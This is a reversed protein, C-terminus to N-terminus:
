PALTLSLPISNSSTPPLLRLVHLERTALTAVSSSSLCRSVLLGLEYKPLKHIRCELETGSVQPQPITRAKGKSEMKGAPPICDSPSVLCGDGQLLPLSQAGERGEEDDGEEREGAVHQNVERSIAFEGLEHIVDMDTEEKEDLPSLIEAEPAIHVPKMSEKVASGSAGGFPQDCFGGGGSGVSLNEVKTIPTPSSLTQDLIIASQGRNPALLRSLSDDQSLSSPVIGTTDRTPSGPFHFSKSVESITTSPLGDRQGYDIGPTRNDLDSYISSQASERRRSFDFQNEFGSPTSQTNFVPTPLSHTSFGSDRRNQPVFNAPPNELQQNGLFDGLSAEQSLAGLTPHIIRRLTTSAEYSPPSCHLETFDPASSYNTQLLTLSEAHHLTPLSSTGIENSFERPIHSLSQSRLGGRLHAASGDLSQDKDIIQKIIDLDDEQQTTESPAETTGPLSPKLTSKSDKKFKQNFITPLSPSRSLIKAPHVGARNEQPDPITPLVEFRIPPPPFPVPLPLPPLTCFPFCSAGIITLHSGYLIDGSGIM